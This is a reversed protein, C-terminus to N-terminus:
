SLMEFLHQINLRSGIEKGGLGLLEDTATKLLPPPRERQAETLESPNAQHTREVLQATGFYATNDLFGANSIAAIATCGVLCKLAAIASLLYLFLSKVVAQMEM